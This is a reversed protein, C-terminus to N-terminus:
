CHLSEIEARRLDRFFWYERMEALTRVYADRLVGLRGSEDAVRWQKQVSREFFLSGVRRQSARLSVTAILSAGKESVLSNPVSRAQDWWDLILAFTLTKESMNMEATYRAVEQPTAWQDLLRIFNTIEDEELLMNCSVDVESFLELLHLKDGDLSRTLADYYSPMAAILGSEKENEHAIMLVKDDHRKRVQKLLNRYGHINQQIGVWSLGDLRADNELVGSGLIGVTLSSINFAMSSDVLHSNEEFWDLLSIFMISGDDQLFSRESSNGNIAGPAVEEISDCLKTAEDGTIMGDLNEDFRTFLMFLSEEGSDLESCVLRHIRKAIRKLYHREWERHSTTLYIDQDDIMM